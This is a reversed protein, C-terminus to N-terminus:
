ILLNRRIGGKPSAVQGSDLFHGPFTTRLGLKPQYRALRRLDFSIARSVNAGNFTHASRSENDNLRDSRCGLVAM